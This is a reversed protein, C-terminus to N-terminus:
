FYRPTFGKVISKRERAAAVDGINILDGDSNLDGDGSCPFVGLGGESALYLHNSLPLTYIGYTWLLGKEKYELQNYYVTFNRYYARPKYKNVFSKQHAEKQHLKNESPKNNSPIKRKLIPQAQCYFCSIVCLYCGLVAKFLYGQCGM